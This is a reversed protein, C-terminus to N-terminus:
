ITKFVCPQNTYLANTYPQSPGCYKGPGPITICDITATLM